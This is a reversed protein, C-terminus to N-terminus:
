RLGLSTDKLDHRGGSVHGQDNPLWGSCGCSGGSGSEVTRNIVRRLRRSPEATKVDLHEHRSGHRFSVTGATGCQLDTLCRSGSSAWDFGIPAHTYNVHHPLAYRRVPQTGTVSVCLMLLCLTPARTHQEHM